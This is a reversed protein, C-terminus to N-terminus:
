LHRRRLHGHLKRRSRVSQGRPRRTTSGGYLANAAATIDVLASDDFVVHYHAVDGIQVGDSASPDNITDVAASADITVIAAVSPSAVAASLAAAALGAVLAGTADWSKASERLRVSLGATRPPHSPSIRRTVRRSTFQRSFHHFRPHDRAPPRRSRCSRGTGPKRRAASFQPLVVALHLDAGARQLQQDDQQPPGAPQDGLASRSASTHDPTGTASLAM